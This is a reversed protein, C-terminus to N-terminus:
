ATRRAPAEGLFEEIFAKQLLIGDWEDPFFPSDYILTFPGGYGARECMELCQRYDDADLGAVGYDAKAHCIEARRMIDALGEYKEPAAWNGLDGNLGVKGDLRDLLWNMEVPSPLLDFWNEVVARVGSGEAQEGLWGLHGAARTLNEETPSQKGAIVRMREAGLTAAIDIWEAMWRVDREATGAHSPDGDEVLLTQFLVNSAAMADSLEHLYAADLSPLHFSCIELRHIGRAALAAPVDILAAAGPGYPEKPAASKDPDPSYAYVAGLLRHLSWTSVAFRGNQLIQM